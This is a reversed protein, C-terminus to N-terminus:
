NKVACVVAEKQNVLENDFKDDLLQNIVRLMDARSVPKSLFKVDSPIELDTYGSILVVKADPNNKKIEILLELGNMIPMKFDTIVLSIEYSYLKLAEEGDSAEIIIFGNRELILKTIFRLDEDDDVLLIKKKEEYKEKNVNQSFIM